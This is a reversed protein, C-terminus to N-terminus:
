AQYDVQGPMASTTRKCFTLWLHHREELCCQQKMKKTSTFLHYIKNENWCRSHATEVIETRVTYRSLQRTFRTLSWTEMLRRYSLLLPDWDRGRLDERKLMVSPSSLEPSGQFLTDERQNEHLVIFLTESQHMRTLLIPSCAGYLEFLCTKAILGRPRM